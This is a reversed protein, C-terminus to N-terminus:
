PNNVTGVFMPISETTIAFVFPRDLIFDIIEDPPEAAGAGEIVIYSAAEVGDEDIVVGASQNISDVYIPSESDFSASFHNGTPEFIDTLGMKKLAPEIDTDSFAQFKPVSLNVKMWKHNDKSFADSGTLMSMYEGRKLVDTVTKDEDPLIFWMFSGEELALKVAGYDEAWYYNMEVLEKNMFTCIVDGDATHFPKESNNNSSFKDDWKSRFYVTSVLTLLSEPSISVNATKKDLFGGTQNRLWNSIDKNTRESGLEGMYVSTYYHYALIDMCEQKYSIDKDLWLSNSLISIEKGNDHYVQERISSIKTRLEDIDNIGLVKMISQRTTSDTLEATIALAIYANVPSWVRNVTDEGSLVEQSCVASFDSLASMAGNVIDDRRQSEEYWLDFKDSRIDPRETKRSHSAKSVETATIMLSIDPINFIMILALVAAVAGLWYRKKKKRSGAAAVLREDVYGLAKVLKDNM